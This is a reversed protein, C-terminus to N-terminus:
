RRTTPSYHPRAGKVRVKARLNIFTMSVAKLRQWYAVCDPYPIAQGAQIASDIKLMIERLSLRTEHTKSQLHEMTSDM